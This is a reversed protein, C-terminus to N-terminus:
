GLAHVPSGEGKPQLGSCCPAGPHLCGFVCREGRVLFHGAQHKFLRAPHSVLWGRGRGGEQPFATLPPSKVFRLLFSMDATVSNGPQRGRVECRGIAESLMTSM